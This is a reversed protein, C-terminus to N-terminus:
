RLTDAISLGLFCANGTDVELEAQVSRLKAYEATAKAQFAHEKTQSRGFPRLSPPSVRIPPPLCAVCGADM